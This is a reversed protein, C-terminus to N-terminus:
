NDENEELGRQKSVVWTKTTPNDFDFNKVHSLIISYFTLYSIILNLNIKNLNWMCQNM